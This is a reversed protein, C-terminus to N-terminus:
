QNEHHNNEIHTQLLETIETLEHKISSLEEKIELIAQTKKDLTVEVYPVHNRFVYGCTLLILAAGAWNIFAKKIKEEKDFAVLGRLILFTSVLALAIAIVTYM